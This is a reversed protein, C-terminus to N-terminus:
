IYYTSLYDNDYYPYEIYIKNAKIGIRKKFEEIFHEHIYEKNVLVKLKDYDELKIIDLCTLDIM